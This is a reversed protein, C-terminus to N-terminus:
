GRMKRLLLENQAVTGSYNAIGLETAIRKRTNFDSGMNISKLYDVVSTTNRNGGAYKNRAPAPAPASGGRLKALLTLNQSATGQYGGIGHHAALKARNAFSSDAGISNLYTVISDTKMDGRPAQPAPAPAPAPKAQGKYAAKLKDLLQVNQAATGQYGGIGHKGALRARNAFTSNEGVSKLFDVLSNTNFDIGALGVPKPAPTPAPVIVPAGGIAATVNQKFQTFLAPQEVWPRPCNKGTVDYHRYLDDQGLNYMKCLAATVDITRKITDPHITGDKEVCMEIGLTTLNANGGVYYNTSAKLKAIRCAKENAHFAVENLPIILTASDRDIFIHAGAFRGGGGDSGDFFNQHNEDTAGPNATWHIVIGRVGVLPEGNRSYPNLIVYDVNWLAM